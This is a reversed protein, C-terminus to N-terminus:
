PSLWRDPYVDGNLHPVLYDGTIAMERAVEMYRPEDPTWLDRFPWSPFLMLAALAVIIAISHAAAPELRGPSQEM